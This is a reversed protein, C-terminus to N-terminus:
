RPLEKLIRNTDAAPQKQRAMAGEIAQRDDPDLRAVEDSRLGTAREITAAGVLVHVKWTSGIPAQLLVLVKM